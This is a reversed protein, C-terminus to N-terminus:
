LRTIIGWQHGEPDTVILQRIGFDRTVPPAMEHGIYPVVGRVEEVMTRKVDSTSDTQGYANTSDQVSPLAESPAAM